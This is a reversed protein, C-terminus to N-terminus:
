DRGQTVGSVSDKRESNSPTVAAECVEVCGCSFGGTGTDTSPAAAEAGTDSMIEGTTWTVSQVQLPAAESGDKKKETGENESPNTYFTIVPSCEGGASGDDGDKRQKVPIEGTSGELEQQKLDETPQNSKPEDTQEQDAEAESSRGGSCGPYCSPSTGDSTTVTICVETEARHM